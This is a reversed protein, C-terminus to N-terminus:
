VVESCEVLLLQLPCLYCTHFWIHMALLAQLVWAISQNVTRTAFAAVYQWFCVEAWHEMSQGFGERSSFCHTGKSAIDHTHCAGWYLESEKGQQLLM